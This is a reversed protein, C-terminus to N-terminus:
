SVDCRVPHARACCVCVSSGCEEQGRRVSGRVCVACCLVYWVCLGVVRGKNEKAKFHHVCYPLVHKGRKDVAIPVLQGELVYPCPVDKGTIPDKVVAACKLIEGTVTSVIAQRDADYRCRVRHHGKEAAPAAPSPAALAVDQPACVCM